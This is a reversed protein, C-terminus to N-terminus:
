GKILCAVLHICVRQSFYAGCTCNSQLFTKDNNDDHAANIQVMRIAIINFFKSRIKTNAGILEGIDSLSPKEYFTLFKEVEDPENDAVKPALKRLAKNLRGTKKNWISGFYHKDRIFYMGDVCEFYHNFREKLCLALQIIPKPLEPKTPFHLINSSETSRRELEKAIENTYTGFPLRKYETMVEKMIRHFGEQSNNTNVSGQQIYNQWGSLCTDKTQDVYYDWFYKLFEPCYCKWFPKIIKLYTLYLQSKALTELVRVDRSIVRAVNYKDTVKKDKNSSFFYDEFRIPKNSPELKPIYTKSKIKPTVNQYFHFKCLSLICDPYIEKVAHRIQLAGDAM